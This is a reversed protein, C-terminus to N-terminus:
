GPAAPLDYWVAARGGRWERAVVREERAEVIARGVVLVLGSGAGGAGLSSDGIAAGGRPGTSFRTMQWFLHRRVYAPQYIVSGVTEVITMATLKAALPLKILSWGSTPRVM